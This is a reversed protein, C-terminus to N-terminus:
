TRYSQLYALPFSAVEEDDNVDDVGMQDVVVVVVVHVVVDVVEEQYSADQQYDCDKLADDVHVVGEEPQM